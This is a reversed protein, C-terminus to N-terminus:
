ARISTGQLGEWIWRAWAKTRNWLEQHCEKYRLLFIRASEYGKPYLRNEMEKSVTEYIHVGCSSNNKCHFLHHYDGNEPEIWRYLTEGNTSSVYAGQKKYIIEM